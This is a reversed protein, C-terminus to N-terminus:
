KDVMVFGKVYSIYLLLIDNLIDLFLFFLFLIEYVILYVKFIFLYKFIFVGM